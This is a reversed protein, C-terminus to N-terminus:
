LGALPAVRALQNPHRECRLTFLPARKLDDIRLVGAVEQPRCEVVSAGIVAGLLRTASVARENELEVLSRPHWRQHSFVAGTGVSAADQRGSRLGSFAPRLYPMATRVGTLSLISAWPTAMVQASRIWSAPASATAAVPPGLISM